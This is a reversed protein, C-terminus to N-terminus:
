FLAQQGSDEEGGGSGGRRSKGVTSAVEGDAFRTRLRQGPAVDDARRLVRGHADLTLTFGRELVRAPDLLRVKETLLDLRQRPAAGARVAERAIQRALYVAKHGAAELTRQSAATVRASSRQLRRGHHEIVPGAGLALRAAVAQLRQEGRRQWALLTPALRTAIELRRTAQDLRQRAAQDLARAAEVLRDDQIQVRAVLFEAAATPTKCRTHACLDVLSTDIEHGIAAVVPRRCHAVAECVAQQDFWSLDARSGGGRTIVIVDLDQAALHALAASVQPATQEGQMRCDVMMVGFDYGSAELGTRFDREAASGAATILGVRLPLDALPRSANRRLLGEAELWALVRRRQAELQGLSYSPDIGVVKLSTKGFPPYFDVRCLLCVELENQLQLTPDFGDLYRGLGFRDRDWKLIASPIQFGAAGSAGAEHLEFYVHPRRSADHPLRQVEGKVWVPEPFAAQMAAQIAENLQRVTLARDSGEM